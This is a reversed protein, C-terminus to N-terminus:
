STKSHSSSATAVRAKAGGRIRTWEALTEARCFISAAIEDM